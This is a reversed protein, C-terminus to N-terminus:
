VPTIATSDYKYSFVVFFIFICSIPQYFTSAGIFMNVLFLFILLTYSRDIFNLKIKKIKKLVVKKPINILLIFFTILHFIGGSFLLDFYNNHAMPYHPLGITGALAKFGIGLIISIIGINNYQMVISPLEWIRSILDRETAESQNSFTYNLLSDIYLDLETQKIIFYVTCIIFGFSLVNIVKSLFNNNGSIFFYAAMCIIINIVAAKQMSALMGIITVIILIIKNTKKFLVDGGLLLISLSYGGLTGLATLSGALSSYRVLGERYSSDAFFSIPGFFIQYPISVAALAM